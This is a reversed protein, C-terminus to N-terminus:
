GTAETWQLLFVDHPTPGDARCHEISLLVNFRAGLGRLLGVVLPALGARESYYHLTLSTPTEDRVTFSPPRL